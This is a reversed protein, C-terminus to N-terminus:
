YVTKITNKCICSQKRIKKSLTGADSQLQLHYLGSAVDGMDLELRFEYQESDLKQELILQGNSSFLRIGQIPDTSQSVELVFQGSTPNPYLSVEAQLQEALGVLESIVVSDSYICGASDTVTVFYTGSALNADRYEM